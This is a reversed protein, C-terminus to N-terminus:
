MGRGERLVKGLVQALLMQDGERAEWICVNKEKRWSLHPRNPVMLSPKIYIVEILSQSILGILLKFFSSLDISVGLRTDLPSAFM